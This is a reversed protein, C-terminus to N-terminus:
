LEENKKGKAGKEKIFKLFAEKTRALNFEETPKGDVFLKITPFGQIGFEKGVKGNESADIVVIKGQDGEEHLQLAVEALTPKVM